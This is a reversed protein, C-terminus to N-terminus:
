IVDHLELNHHKLYNQFKPKNLRKSCEHYVRDAICGIVYPQGIGLENKAYWSVDVDGFDILGDLSDWVIDSLSIPQGNDSMQLNKGTEIRYTLNEWYVALCNKACDKIATEFQKKTCKMKNRM